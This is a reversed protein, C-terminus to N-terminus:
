DPQLNLGGRRVTGAVLFDEIKVIPSKKAKNKTKSDEWSRLPRFNEDGVSVYYKNSVSTDRVFNCNYYLLAM